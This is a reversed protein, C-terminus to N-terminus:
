AVGPAITISVPARSASAVRRVAIATTRSCAGSSRGHADRLDRDDPTLVDALRGEHVTQETVSCRDRVAHGPHCAVPDLQVRGPAATREPQDVGGAVQVARPPDFREGALLGLTRDVLGVHDQEDNVRPRPDGLFVGLERTAQPLCGHREQQDGVLGVFGGVQRLDCSEVSQAETLRYANGREVPVARAVQEISDDLEEGFAGVGCLVQLLGPERDDATGFTPFDLRKM